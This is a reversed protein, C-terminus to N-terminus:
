KVIESEPDHLQRLAAGTFAVSDANSSVEMDGALKDLLFEYDHAALARRLHEMKFGVDATTSNDTEMVFVRMSTIQGNMTEFTYNRGDYAWLTAPYDQEKKRSSPEGLLSVIKSESDGIHIGAVNYDSPCGQGTVQLSHIEKPDKATNQVGLYCKKPVLWYASDRWGDEYRKEEAPKGLPTLADNYQLWLYGALSRQLRHPQPSPQVSLCFLFVLLLV